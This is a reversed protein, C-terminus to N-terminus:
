TGLLGRAPETKRGGAARDLQSWLTWPRSQSEPAANEKQKFRFRILINAETIQDVVQRLNVFAFHEPPDASLRLRTPHSGPAM